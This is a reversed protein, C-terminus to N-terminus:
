SPTYVGLWRKLELVRKVAQDIRARSIKGSRVARRIRAACARAGHINKTILAVDVGARITAVCAKPTSGGYRWAVAALDDSIAVGRFGFERRLRRKAIHPHVSAPRNGGDNVYIGHSVMMLRIGGTVMKHFPVADVNRLEWRTRRVYAPGFDSNQDAGGFGPFHKGSAATRKSQLGRAFARALRGVRRPRSGFSRSRMVHSPPLDLDAVPALNVNVGARHLARGTKRGQARALSTDGSAGIEPASRWPPMDHFRKVVGGEQDVSILAGVAHPTAGRVVRQVQRTLGRLQSRDAYNHRFLIVGALDHRRILDRETSSLGTGGISFMVLQGVKERLSMASLTDDVSPAAPTVPLVSLAIVATVLLITRRAGVPRLPLPVSHPQIRRKPKKM